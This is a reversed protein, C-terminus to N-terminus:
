WPFASGINVTTKSRHQDSLIKSTCHFSDTHKEAMKWNVRLGTYIIYMHTLTHTNKESFYLSGNQVKELGTSTNKKLKNTKKLNNNKSVDFVGYGYSHLNDIMRATNNNGTSQRM